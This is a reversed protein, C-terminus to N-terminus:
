LLLRCVLHGRSQLESTHEESRVFATGVDGVVVGPGRRLPRGPVSVRAGGGTVVPPGGLLDDIETALCISCNSRTMMRKAPSEPSPICNVPSRNVWSVADNPLSRDVSGFKGASIRAGAPVRGPTDLKWNCKASWSMMVGPSEGSTRTAIFGAASLALMPSM